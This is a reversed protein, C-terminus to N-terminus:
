VVSRRDGSTNHRIRKHKVVGDALRTGVTKDIDGTLLVVGGKMAKSVPELISAV